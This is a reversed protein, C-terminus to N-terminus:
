FNNNEGNGSNKQTDYIPNIDFFDLNWSFRAQEVV